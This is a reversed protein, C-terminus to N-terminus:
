PSVGSWGLLDGNEFGDRFLIAAFVVDDILANLSGGDDVKYVQVYVGASQAGAPATHFGIKPTWPGTVDSFVSLGSIYSDCGPNLFWSVTVGGDGSVGQDVAIRVTAGISYETDGGVPFCQYYGSVVTGAGPYINTISASGSAPDGAADETSYVAVVNPDPLETWGATGGDFGPNQVLPDAAAVGAVAVTVALLSALRINM